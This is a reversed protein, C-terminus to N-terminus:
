LLVLMDISCNQRPFSGDLGYAVVVPPLFLQSFVRRLLDYYVQAVPVCLPVVELVM